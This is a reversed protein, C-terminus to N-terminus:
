RRAPRRPRWGCGTSFRPEEFRSLGQFRGVATYLRDQTLRDTRRRHEGQLYGTLHPLAATVLGTAALGVSSGFAAAHDGAALADIVLKTQWVVAAPLLGSATM